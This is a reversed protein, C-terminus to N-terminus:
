GVSRVAAGPIDVPAVLPMALLIGIDPQDFAGVAALGPRFGEAYVVVASAPLLEEAPGRNVLGGTIDIDHKIIASVVRILLGVHIEGDTAVAAGGKFIHFNAVRGKIGILKNKEAIIVM